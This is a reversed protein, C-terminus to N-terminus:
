LIKAVHRFQKSHDERFTVKTFLNIKVNLNCSINTSDEILSNLIRMDSTFHHVKNPIKSGLLTAM